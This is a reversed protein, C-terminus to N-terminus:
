VRPTTVPSSSSSPSSASPSVTPATSTKQFETIYHAVLGGAIGLGGGGVLAWPLRARKLAFATTFLSGVVGGILTYDDMQTKGFDSKLALVRSNVEEKTKVFNLQLAALCAGVSPGVAAVGIASARLLGNVSFMKTRTSNLLYIVPSAVSFIQIGDIAAERILIMQNLEFQRQEATTPCFTWGTVLLAKDGATSLAAPIQNGQFAEAPVQRNALDRLPNM